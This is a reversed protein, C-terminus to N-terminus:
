LKTELERLRIETLRLDERTAGYDAADRKAKRAEDLRGVEALSRALFVHGLAFDPSVRVLREFHAVAEPWNKLEVEVLGLYFLTTRKGPEFQLADEFAAGADEYQRLGFLLRGRQEHAFGRAPNLEIARNMHVLARDLDREDRYLKAMTLHFPTFAENLDLGRRVTEMARSFLGLRDFAISFSNMLNCALFFEEDRGCEEEPHYRQLRELIEIAENLRGAGSLSKAREYSAYGRLHISRQERREDPWIIPLADKGRAMAVRAEDIRGLARLSEGLTRHVFPHDTSQALPTILDVAELHQGQRAMVRARGFMAMPGAGLDGARQFARIADESQGTELLWTGLWMWAPAYDSDIAQARQLVELAQVYNGVEAYLQSAFYPWRFDDPDLSEAQQYTLLAEAHLGNVDYVMALRGRTLGSDPATLASEYIRNLYEAVDQDPSDVGAAVPADVLWSEIRACGGFVLVFLCVLAFYHV